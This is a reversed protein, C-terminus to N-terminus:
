HGGPAQRQRRSANNRCLFSKSIGILLFFVEILPPFPLPASSSSPSHLACKHIPLFSSCLHFSHFFPSTTHTPTHHTVSLTNCFSLSRTSTSSRALFSDTVFLPPFADLRHILGGLAPLLLSEELQFFFSKLSCFSHAKPRHAVMGYM